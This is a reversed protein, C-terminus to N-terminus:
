IKYAIKQQLNIETTVLTSEGTDDNVEKEQILGYYNCPAPSKKTRKIEQVEETM